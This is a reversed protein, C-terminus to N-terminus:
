KGLAARLTVAMAETPRGILSSLTKSDNFLAGKAAGAESDALFGAFGDPLGAKVMADKLAAEPLDLYAVPKGAVDSLIEVYQSLTLAEDGALELVEGDHGGALVVAAAEAYDNRPAFSYKGDASAGFRQGLGIDQEATGIVNESYWGNRLLTYSLGSEALASETAKHEAALMMPSDAADLLSTYAIFGVGADKAADIVALHQAVRQGMESSSILLLRDIGQFAAKLSAGDNYDGLRTEIGKGDFAAAKEASRVLVVIDSADVRKALHDVVLSGLQGSAGTILYKTM